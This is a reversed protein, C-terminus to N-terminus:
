EVMIWYIFVATVLFMQKRCPRSHQLLVRRVQIPTKGVFCAGPKKASVRHANQLGPESSISKLHIIGCIGTSSGSKLLPPLLTSWLAWQCGWLWAPFAAPSLHLIGESHHSTLSSVRQSQSVLEGQGQLNTGQLVNELERAMQPKFTKFFCRKLVTECWKIIRVMLKESWCKMKLTTAATFVSSAVTGARSFQWNLIKKIKFNRYFEDGVAEKWSSSGQVDRAPFKTGLILLLQHPEPM